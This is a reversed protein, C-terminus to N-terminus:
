KWREMWAKRNAEAERRVDDISFECGHQKGLQLVLALFSKFGPVERLRRQLTQDRFVIQRFQELDAAM